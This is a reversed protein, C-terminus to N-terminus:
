YKPGVILKSLMYSLWGVGYQVCGFFFFGLVSSIGSLCGLMMGFLIIGVVASFGTAIYIGFRFNGIKSIVAVTLANVLLLVNLGVYVGGSDCVMEVAGTVALAVALVIEIAAILLVCINKRRNAAKQKRLEEARKQMELNRQREEEERKLREQESKAFLAKNRAIDLRRNCEKLYEEWQNEIFDKKTDPATILARDMLEQFYSLNEIDTLGEGEYYIGDDGNYRVYYRTFNETESVIQGYWGRYDDPFEKCVEEYAARASEFDNFKLFTDAKKLIREKETDGKSFEYIGVSVGSLRRIEDETFTSRCFDCRLKAADFEGGCNPCKM